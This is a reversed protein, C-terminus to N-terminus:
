GNSNEAKFENIAQAAVRRPDACGERIMMLALGYRDVQGKLQRLRENEARLREIEAQQRRIQECLEERIKDAAHKDGAFSALAACATRVAEGPECGLLEALAALDGRM